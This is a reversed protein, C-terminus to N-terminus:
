PDPNWCRAPARGRSRRRAPAFDVARQEVQEGARLHDRHHRRHRGAAVAVGVVDVGVGKGARDGARTCAARRRNRVSTGPTSSLFLLSISSSVTASACARQDGVARDRAAHDGLDLGADLRELAADLADDDEFPLVGCATSSSSKVSCPAPVSITGQPSPCNETAKLRSACPKRRPTGKTATPFVAVTVPVPLDPFHYVANVCFPGSGSHGIARGAAGGGGVDTSATDAHPGRGVPGRTDALLYEDQMALM